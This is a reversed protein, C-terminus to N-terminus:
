RSRATCTSAERAHGAGRGPRALPRGHVRHGRRVGQGDPRVAQPLRLVEEREAVDQGREDTREDDIDCLAVVEMLKGAHEIDSAGKGGVGIGAVRLKENAGFARRVSVAPGAFLYGLAGATGLQVARRRTIRRSM